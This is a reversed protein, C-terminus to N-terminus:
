DRGLLLRSDHVFSILSVVASGTLGVLFLAELLHFGLIALFM